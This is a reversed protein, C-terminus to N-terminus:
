RKQLMDGTASRSFYVLPNTDAYVISSKSPSSVGMAIITVIWTARTPPTTPPSLVATNITCTISKAVQYTLIADTHALAPDGGQESELEPSSSSRCHKSPPHVTETVRNASIRCFNQLTQPLLARYSVGASTCLQQCPCFNHSFRCFGCSVKVGICNFCNM